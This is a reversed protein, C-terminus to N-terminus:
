RILFLTFKFYTWLLHESYLMFQVYLIPCLYVFTVILLIWLYNYSDSFSFPFFLSPLLLIQFFNTLFEKWQLFANLVWSTERSMAKNCGVTNSLYKGAPDITFFGGVLGPSGPDTGPNPLDEPSPFPLGNWYGQRPFGMSFMGPLYECFLFRTYM